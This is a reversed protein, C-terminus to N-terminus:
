RISTIKGSKDVTFVFSVTDSQSAQGSIVEVAYFYMKQDGQLAIGGVYSFRAYKQGGDRSRKVQAVLKDKSTGQDILSAQLQPSFSEWMMEADYHAQGQLFSEVSASVPIAPPRNDVMKAVVLPAILAITELGIVGVLFLTLLVWGLRPRILRGAMVLGYAVRRLVLRTIREVTGSPPASAAEGQQQPGRVNDQAMPTYTTAHPTLTAQQDRQDEM